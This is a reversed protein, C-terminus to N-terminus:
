REDLREAIDMSQHLIRIIFIHKEPLTYFIVHSRHPFRYYGAHIDNASTDMINEVDMAAAQSLTYM